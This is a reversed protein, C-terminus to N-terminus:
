FIKWQFSFQLSRVKAKKVKWRTDGKHSKIIWLSFEFGIRNRPRNTKHHSHNFSKTVSTKKIGIGNDEVKIQINGNIKKFLLCNPKLM